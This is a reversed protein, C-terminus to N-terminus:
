GTNHWRPDDMCAMYAPAQTAIADDAFGQTVEDAQSTAAQQVHRRQAYGTNNHPM